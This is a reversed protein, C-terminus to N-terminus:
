SKVHLSLNFRKPYYMPNHASVELIDREHIGNENLETSGKILLALVIRTM